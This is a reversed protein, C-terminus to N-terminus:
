IMLSFLENRMQQQLTNRAVPSVYAVGAVTHLVQLVM